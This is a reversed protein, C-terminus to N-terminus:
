HLDEYKKLAEMIFAKVTNCRREDFSPGSFIRNVLLWPIVIVDPDKEYRYTKYEDSDSMVNIVFVAKAGIKQKKMSIKEFEESDKKKSRAWFKFDVYINKSRSLCFDFKEFKALDTIEELPIKLKDEFIAKGVQEGIVGRYVDDLVNPLLIYDNPKFSTAFGNSLFYNKLIDVKMLDLLKVYKDSAEILGFGKEYSIKEIKYEDDNGSRKFWYSKIKQGEPAKLYFLRMSENEKMEEESLTPHKVLFERIRKYIVVHSEMWKDKDTKLLSRINSRTVDCNNIADTLDENARANKRIPNTAHEVVAEFELTNFKDKEDEFSFSNFIEKDIYIYKGNTLNSTDDTRSIRGIAQKVIVVGANNVSDSEYNQYSNSSNEMESETQEKVKCANRIFGKAERFTKEQNTALALNEYILGSLEAAGMNRSPISLLYTPKELYISDIDVEKEVGNDDLVSYQLNQGTGATSYSSFIIVRRKEEIAKKYKKLFGNANKSTLALIEPKNKATQKKLVIKIVEDFSGENYINNSGKQKLLRPALVLMVRSDKNKIFDRVSTAAKVFRKKDFLPDKRGISSDPYSDLLLQMQEKEEPTDTFSDLIDEPNIDISQVKINPKTKARRERYNKKLRAKTSDPLYSMTDGLMEKLYRLNFNNLVTDACATASICAVATNSALTKIFKEPTDDLFSMMIKTNLDHSPDNLFSYLQFGEEYLDYGFLKDKPQETKKGFVRHTNVAIRKLTELTGQELGFVSLVSSIADELELQEDQPLVKNKAEAYNDAAMCVFKIFFNLAGVLSGILVGLKDSYKKEDKTIINLKRKDDRRVYISGAEKATSITMPDFDHFIFFNKTESDTALKFEYNLNHDKFASEFVVRTKEFARRTTREKEDPNAQIFLEEPKEDTAFSKHISRVVQLLDLQYETANQIQHNLLHMKAKDSEDIIVLSDKIISNSSFRYPKTVIPNNGSHFKDTTIFLVKRQSTLIAPYLNILWPFDRKIRRIRQAEKDCGSWKNIFKELDMRFTKEFKSLISKKFDEISEPTSDNLKALDNLLNVNSKLNQFSIMKTIDDEVEVKLINDIVCDLNATIKVVNDYFKSEDKEFSKLLDNYADNLNTKINTLYMIRKIGFEDPRLIFDHMFQITGYTKGSGTPMEFFRLGTRGEPLSQIFEKLAEKMELNRRGGM